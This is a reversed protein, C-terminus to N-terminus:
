SALLGGDAVFSAGTCYASADSALFLALNAIEENTGYRGLPTISTFGAKVSDPADPAAQKEISRMMRNEIPGPHICNVRIGEPGLEVAATKVLGVVAHKSAVYPGLGAFGALGAVSSTAIISGGPRPLHPAVTKIALWVGRVNVGIVRDFDAEETDTLPAVRGEIGANAFLIDIGGFREKAKDVYAQTQAADSVDAVFTAVKGSETAAAAATLAKADRDVMLVNAGRHAFLAATAAGIGGAAGTVIATKDKLNLMDEAHRGGHPTNRCVMRLPGVECGASKPTKPIQM